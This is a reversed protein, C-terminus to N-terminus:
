GLWIKLGLRIRFRVKFTGRFRVMVRNRDKVRVSFIEKLSVRVYGEGLWLGTVFRSGLELEFGLELM